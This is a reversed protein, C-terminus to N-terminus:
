RLRNYGPITETMSRVSEPNIRRARAVSIAGEPDACGSNRIRHEEMAADHAALAGGSREPARPPNAGTPNTDDEAGDKEELERAGLGSGAADKTVRHQRLTANDANWQGAPHTDTLGMSHAEMLREYRDRMKAGLDADSTSDLMERFTKM